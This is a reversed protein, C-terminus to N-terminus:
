ERLDYCCNKFDDVHQFSSNNENSQRTVLV